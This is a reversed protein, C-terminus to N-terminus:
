TRLVACFSSMASGPGILRSKKLAKVPLASNLNEDGHSQDQVECRERFVSGMELAQSQPAKIYRRTYSNVSTSHETVRLDVDAQGSQCRETGIAKGRRDHIGYLVAQTEGESKRVKM